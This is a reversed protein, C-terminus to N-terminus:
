VVSKRDIEAKRSESPLSVMFSSSFNLLLFVWSLLMAGLALVLKGKPTKVFDTFAARNM